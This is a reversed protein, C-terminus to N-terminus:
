WEGVAVGSATRRDLCQGFGFGSEEVAVLVPPDAVVGDVGAAGDGDAVGAPEAVEADSSSVFVGRDDQEHVAWVGDDCGPGGALDEGFVGDVGVLVVLGPFLSIGRGFSLSKTFSSRVCRDVIGRYM